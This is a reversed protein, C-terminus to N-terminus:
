KKFLVTILFNLSLRKHFEQKTLLVDQSIKKISNKMNTILVVDMFFLHVAKEKEGALYIMLM